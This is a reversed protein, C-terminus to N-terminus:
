PKQNRQKQAKIEAEYLVIMEHVQSEM